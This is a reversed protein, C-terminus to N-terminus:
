DITDQEKELVETFEGNKLYYLVDEKIREGDVKETKVNIPIYEGTEDESWEALTIFSGIKASAHSCHGACM